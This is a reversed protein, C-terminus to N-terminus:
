TPLARLATDMVSAVEEGAVLGDYEGAGSLSRPPPMKSRLPWTWYQASKRGLEGQGLVWQGLETGHIVMWELVDAGQHVVVNRAYYLGELVPPVDRNDAILRDRLAGVWTLTELAAHFAEPSQPSAVKLRGTAAALGQVLVVFDVPSSGSTDTV